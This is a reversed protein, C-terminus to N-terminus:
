YVHIPGRNTEIYNKIQKEVINVIQQEYNNILINQELVTNNLTTINSELKQIEIKNPHPM